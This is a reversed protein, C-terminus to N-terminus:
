YSSRSDARTPSDPFYSVDHTTNPVVAIVKKRKFRLFAQFHNGDHQLTRSQEADPKCYESHNSKWSKQCMM